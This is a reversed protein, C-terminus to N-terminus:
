AGGGKARWADLLGGLGSGTNRGPNDLVQEVLWAVVRGVEPGPALGLRAMIESGSLALDGAGLPPDSAAQAELRQGARAAAAADRDGEAAAQARWLARLAGAEGRGVRALCRRLAPDTPAHAADPSPRWADAEAVLLGVRRQVAKPFKLRALVAGAGRPGLGALLAALRVGLDSAPSVDLAAQRGRSAPVEPLIEQRLHTRDLLELGWGPRRARLLKVLEQQIREVAVQRFTELREPIAAETPPDLTFELVCAFRVARMARLGDEAFRARPDGVARVRRARLDELGGHPDRFDGTLPNWALANITFDRRALDADIDDLFVVADPRRGDTYGAEGRYTTVEVPDGAPTVVTVTGHALGTPVVKPFAAIVAEPPASTALDWDAAQHHPGGLLLDRVAGGVLYAGHGADGLRGLVELVAPPVDSAKLNAPDM